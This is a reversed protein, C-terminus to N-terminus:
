LPFAETFVEPWRDSGDTRGYAQLARTIEHPHWSIDATNIDQRKLPPRPDLRALQGLMRNPIHMNFLPGGFHRFDELRPAHPLICSIVLDNVMAAADKAGPMYVALQTLHGWHASFKDRLGALNFPNRPVISYDESWGPCKGNSYLACLTLAQLKLAQPVPNDHLIRGLTILCFEPLGKPHFLYPSFEFILQRACQLARYQGPLARPALAEAGDPRICVRGPDEPDVHISFPRLRSCQWPSTTKAKLAKSVCRLASLSYDDLFETILWFLELPLNDLTHSAKFHIIRRDLTRPAMIHPIRSYTTAKSSYDTRRTPSNRDVRVDEVRLKRLLDGDMM